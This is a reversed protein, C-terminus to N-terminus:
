DGTLHLGPILIDDYHLTSPQAHGLTDCTVYVNPQTFITVYKARSLAFTFISGRELFLQRQCNLHSRPTPCVLNITQSGAGDESTKKILIRSQLMKLVNQMSHKEVLAASQM